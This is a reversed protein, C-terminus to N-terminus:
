ALCRPPHFVGGATVSPPVRTDITFTVRRAVNPVVRPAPQAQAVVIHPACPCLPGPPCTHPDCNGPCDPGCDVCESDHDAGSVLSSVGTSAVVILIITLARLLRGFISAHLTVPASALRLVPHGIWRSM